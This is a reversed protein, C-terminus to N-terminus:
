TPNSATNVPKYEDYDIIEGLLEYSVLEIPQAFDRNAVQKFMFEIDDEMCHFYLQSFTYRHKYTISWLAKSEPGM